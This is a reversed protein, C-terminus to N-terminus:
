DSTECCLYGDADKYFVVYNIAPLNAWTTVGDGIKLIKNTSDYGFEGSLLVTDSNPASGQRVQVTAKKTIAM